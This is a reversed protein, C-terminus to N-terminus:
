AFLTGNWKFDQLDGIHDIFQRTLFDAHYGFRFEISPVMLPTTQQVSHSKADDADAVHGNIIVM